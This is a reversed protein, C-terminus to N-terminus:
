DMQTADNLGSLLYILSHTISHIISYTLGVKMELMLFVVGFLIIYVNLLALFPSLGTLNYIVSLVGNLALAAGATAGLTKWSYNGEEIKSKLILYQDKGLLHYFVLLQTLAHTYSLSYFCLYNDNGVGILKNVSEQAEEIAAYNGTAVTLVASKGTFWSSM